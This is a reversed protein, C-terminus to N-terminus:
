ERYDGLFWKTYADKFDDMQKSAVGFLGGEWHNYAPEGNLLYLNEPFTRTTYIPNQTDYEAGM